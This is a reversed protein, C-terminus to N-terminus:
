GSRLGVVVGPNLIGKPDLRTKATDVVYAMAIPEPPQAPGSHTEQDLCRADGNPLGTKATSRVQFVSM